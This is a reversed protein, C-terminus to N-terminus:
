YKERGTIEKLAKKVEMGKTKSSPKWVNFEEPLLREIDNPAMGHIDYTLELQSLIKVFRRVNGPRNRDAGKKPRVSYPDWYLRHALQILSKNSIIYQRAALQATFDNFIHPACHLFLKSNERGHLSYIDYSSAVYHRYYERYDSSCIYKAIERPKRTGDIIPCLQDFWLYALWTWLGPKADTRSIGKASFLQTLYEAMEMRTNFRRTEDIEVPPRFERSYPEVNLDPRPAQPNRKLEQIYERFKQIGEETLERLKIM